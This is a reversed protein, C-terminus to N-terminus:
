KCLPTAFLVHKSFIEPVTIFAGTAELGWTTQTVVRSGLCRSTNLTHYAQIVPQLVMPLDGPVRKPLQTLGGASTPSRGGSHTCSRGTPHSVHIGQDRIGFMTSHGGGNVRPPIV